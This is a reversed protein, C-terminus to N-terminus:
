LRAHRSHFAAFFALAADHPVGGREAQLAVAGDDLRRLNVTMTRGPSWGTAPSLGNVM